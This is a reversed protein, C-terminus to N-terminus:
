HLSGKEKSINKNYGLKQRSLEDNLEEKQQM